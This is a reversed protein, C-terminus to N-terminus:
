DAAYNWCLNLRVESTTAAPQGMDAGYYDTDDVDSMEALEINYEPNLSSNGLGSPYGSQSDWDMSIPDQASLTSPSSSCGRSSQSAAAHERTETPAARGSMGTVPM